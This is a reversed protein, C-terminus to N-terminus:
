MTPRKAEAAESLFKQHDRDHNAMFDRVIRAGESECWSRLTMAPIDPASPSFQRVQSRGVARTIEAADVIVRRAELPPVSSLLEQKIHEVYDRSTGRPGATEEAFLRNELTCMIVTQDAIFAASLMKSLTQVDSAKPNVTQLGLLMVSAMFLYAIRPPIARRRRTSTAKAGM